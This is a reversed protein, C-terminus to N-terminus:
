LPSRLQLVPRRGLERGSVRSRAPAGLAGIILKAITRRMSRHTLLRARPTAGAGRDRRLGQSPHRGRLRQELAGGRGRVHPQSGGVTRHSLGVPRRALHRCERHGPEIAGRPGPRIELTPDISNLLDLDASYRKGDKYVIRELTVANSIRQNVADDNGLASTTSTPLPALTTPAQVTTPTSTTTGIATPKATGGCGVALLVVAVIGLKVHM